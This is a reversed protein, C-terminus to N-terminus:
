RRELEQLAREAARKIVDRPSKMKVAAELIEKADAGCKGIARLAAAQVIYSEDNQFCRELFRALEPKQLDGLADLAAARVTSKEDSYKERFFPEFSEDKLSGLVGLAEKRVAWFADHRARDMLAAIVYSQDLHRKLEGAAWMRGIINDNKLQYILEDVSKQFTWEKLLYNGDDFRVLLPKAACDFTFLEEQEDIWVKKSTKGSSTTIAIAVPMKFIPIWESIEQTQVIKLSLKKDTEDWSYSVDFVPHGAKFVWQEFFWDMNQGTAERIAAMLQYTDVAQFAHKHLFHSIARQFPRDGMIWRLMNLVVAGKPYTHSDFNDNPFNYRDFVIPRKYRNRAENIYQHKKRLLNLAGEDEGLDYKSFLYEGYTGFSENIWAHSWTRMTVLDGWWQHAAEHAVLWHSPFDQEARADHITSQGLVTATTSEAGGGIGPITVQDYKVWPYDYGYEKNFFAIIEPTKRFSRMANDVDKPYVWYNIPLSGLSDKLVTYPGAALVFLYTSHPQEQSWHFTKTGDTENGTVSLLRGNSLANYDNRVTVILESTAKDGPVDNCPFWHRAGEPFSLTNILQPNDETAKKFDLGLDYGPGMGYKSNDLKPNGSEYAVSFSLTDRYDYKRSLFVVVRSDTQEFKLSQGGASKVATVKLVEADLECREFGDRLPALTITNEGWFREKEEDFRLAIKYHVADYDRVKEYQKPRSYVDIQQPFANFNTTLICILIPLVYRMGGKLPALPTYCAPSRM